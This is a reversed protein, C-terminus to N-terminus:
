NRIIIIKISSNKKINNIEKLNIKSFFQKKTKNQFIGSNYSNKKLHNM